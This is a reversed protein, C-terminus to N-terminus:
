AGFVNGYREKFCRVHLDLHITLDDDTLPGRVDLHVHDRDRRDSPLAEGCHDCTYTLM